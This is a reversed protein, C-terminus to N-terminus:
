VEYGSEEDIIGCVDNEQIVRFVDSTGDPKNDFHKPYFDFNGDGFIVVDGVRVDLPVLKGRKDRKGPGCAVVTGRCHKEHHIVEIVSSAKREFPRVVLYDHKPLLM